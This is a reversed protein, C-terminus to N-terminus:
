DAKALAEASVRGSFTKGASAKAYAPPPALRSRVASRRCAM